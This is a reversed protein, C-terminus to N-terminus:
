RSAPASSTTKSANSIGEVSCPTMSLSSSIARSNTSGPALNYCSCFISTYGDAICALSVTMSVKTFQHVVGSIQDLRAEHDLEASRASLSPWVCLRLGTFLPACHRKTHYTVPWPLHIRAVPSATRRLHYPSTEHRHQSVCAMAGTSRSRAEPIQGRSIRRTKRERRV